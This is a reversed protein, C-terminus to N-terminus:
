RRGDYSLMMHTADQAVVMQNALAFEVVKAFFEPTAAKGTPSNPYNIVLFKARRRIDAPISDLDPLFDNEALLPLRHM